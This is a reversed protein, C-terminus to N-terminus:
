TYHANNKNPFLNFNIIIGISQGNICVHIKNKNILGTGEFAYLILIEMHWWKEPDYLSM